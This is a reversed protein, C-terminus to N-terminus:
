FGTVIGSIVIYALIAFTFGAFFKRRRVWDWVRRGFRSSVSYHKEVRRTLAVLRDVDERSLVAASSIEPDDELALVLLPDEGEPFVIDWIVKVEDPNAEDGGEEVADEGGIPSVESIPSVIDGSDDFGEGASSFGEDEVSPSLGDERRGDDFSDMEVNRNM